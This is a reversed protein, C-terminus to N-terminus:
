IKPDRPRSELLGRRSVSTSPLYPLFFRPQALRFWQTYCPAVDRCICIPIPVTLFQCGFLPTSRNFSESLTRIYRQHCGVSKLNKNVKYIWGSLSKALKITPKLCSTCGNHYCWPKRVIRRYDLVNQPISLYRRRPSQQRHSKLSDPLSLM